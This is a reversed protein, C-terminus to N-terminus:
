SQHLAPALGCPRIFAPNPGLIEPKPNLALAGCGRLGLAQLFGRGFGKFGWARFGLGQVGAGQVGLGSVRVRLSRSGSVRFGM